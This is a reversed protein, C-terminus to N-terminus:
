AARSLAGLQTAAAEAIREGMERTGLVHSGDGAIDATRLGRSWVSRVGDEIALAERELGLSERLLMALSLIQGVPNALDRDAIDYAAGHNTQYVAEGCPSFNGSFSLGRSGILVATLDGLVDGALNSAAIVDFEHPRRVLEYAMLDVDVFTCDIGEAAAAESGCSRWLRALAPVGGQKLVVTLRGRRASALRAAAGLFRRLGEESVEFFHRVARRGDGDLIEESRGQYIGSLTERVLLLDVDDLSEAPLPSADALGYRSEVPVLKLFLDLRRRLDYVYRGGGPGTLIAGGRSLVDQCFHAVEDPLPTGVAREAALGIPGGLEVQVSAGGAHELRRLLDLAAEVIEPGIGEGPLAGILPSSIRRTAAPDTTHSLWGGAQVGPQERASV